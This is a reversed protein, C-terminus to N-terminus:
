KSNGLFYPFAVSQSTPKPIQLRPLSPNPRNRLKEGVTTKTPTLQLQKAEEENGPLDETENSGEEGGEEEEFQNSIQAFIPSDDDM